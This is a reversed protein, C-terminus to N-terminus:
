QDGQNENGAFGECAHSIVPVADAAGSTSFGALPLVRRPKLLVAPYSAAM